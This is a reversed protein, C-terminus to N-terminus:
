KKIFDEVKKVVESPTSLAKVIFGDVNFKASHDREEQEGQNSLIIIKSSPLLKDKRIQEILEWGDMGPMIIDCLLVGPNMGAKIEELCKQSDSFVKVDFGSNKFKISYMDLLFSDDDVLVILTKKDTTQETTNQETM